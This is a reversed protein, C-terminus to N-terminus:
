IFLFSLALVGCVSLLFFRTIVVIMTSMSSTPTSIFVYGIVQSDVIGNADELIPVGVTYRSEGYYGFFTGTAQYVNTRDIQEIAKYNVIEVDRLMYEKKDSFLLCEDNNESLIFIDSTGNEDVLKITDSFMEFGARKDQNYLRQKYLEIPNARM